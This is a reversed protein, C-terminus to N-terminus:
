TFIFVNRRKTEHFNEGKYLRLAYVNEGDAELSITALSRAAADHMARRLMISGLNKGRHKAVVGLYVVKASLIHPLDNVLICGVPEDEIDVIWWSKPRYTGTSKHSAIVDKIDRIDLLAPCDLSGEYTSLIVEALEAESFENANRWHLQPGQQLAPLDALDRRLYILETIFRFGASSLVDADIKATTSLLSQLMSLGDDIAAVSIKELLDRLLEREVGKATAPTHYLMGTRGQSALVIAVAFCQKERRVWWLRTSGSKSADILKSFAHARSEIFHGRGKGGVLFRLASQRCDEPVEEM